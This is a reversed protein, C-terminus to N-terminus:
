FNLIPNATKPNSLLERLEDREQRYLFINNYFYIEIIMRDNNEFEFIYNGTNINTWFNGKFHKFGLNKINEQFSRKPDPIELKM